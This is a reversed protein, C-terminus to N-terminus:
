GAAAGPLVDAPSEAVAFVVVNDRYHGRRRDFEGGCTVLRLEPGPTPGYVRATPFRATRRSSGPRGSCPRSVPARDPAPRDRGPRAGNDSGTALRRKKIVPLPLPPVIPVQAASGNSLSM